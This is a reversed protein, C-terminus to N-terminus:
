HRLVYWLTSGTDCYLHALVIPTIRNTRAYYISFILFLAGDALALPVGQYLHYSTQLATSAIIAKTTSNTLVKIETMLYARLILEEFFPNLFVFLITVVSIGGGFLGEVVRVSSAKHSVTTLGAFHIAAYSM